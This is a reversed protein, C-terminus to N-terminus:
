VLISKRVPLIAFFFLLLSSWVVYTYSTRSNVNFFESIKEVTTFIFFVFVFFIIFRLYKPFKVHIESLLESM